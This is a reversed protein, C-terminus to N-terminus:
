DDPAGTPGADTDLLEREWLGIDNRMPPLPAAREAERAAWRIAQTLLWGFTRAYIPTRLRPWITLWAIAWLLLAATTLAAAIQVTRGTVARRRRPPRM